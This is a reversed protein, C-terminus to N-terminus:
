YTTFVKLSEIFLAIGCLFCQMGLCRSEDSADGCQDLGDCVFKSEICKENLCKFEQCSCGLEDSNDFCNNIGNCQLSLPICKDNACQFESQQCKSDTYLIQFYFLLRSSLYKMLFIRFNSFM